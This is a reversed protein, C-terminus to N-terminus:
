FYFLFKIKLLEKITKHRIKFSYDTWYKEINILVTMDGVSVLYGMRSILSEWAWVKWGGIRGCQFYAFHLTFHVLSILSNALDGRPNWSEFLNNPSDTNDKVNFYRRQYIYHNAVNSQIGGEGGGEWWSGLGRPSNLVGFISFMELGVTGLKLKHFGKVINLICKLSLHM